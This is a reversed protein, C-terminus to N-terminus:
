YLELDETVQSLEDAAARTELDRRHQYTILESAYIRRHTGVKHMPLAGEDMLKVIHPRSVNLLDAAQQTTLEAHMPVVGVFNGAAFNVLVERLIHAIERPLDIVDNNGTERVSVPVFGGSSDTKLLSNLQALAIQAQEPSTPEHLNPISTM